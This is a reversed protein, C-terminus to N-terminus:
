ALLAGVTASMDCLKSNRLFCITPNNVINSKVLYSKISQSDRWTNKKQISYSSCAFNGQLPSLIKDWLLFMLIFVDGLSVEKMIASHTVLHLSTKCSKSSDLMFFVIKSLIMSYWM